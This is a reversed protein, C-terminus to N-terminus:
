WIKKGLRVSMHCIEGDKLYIIHNIRDVSEIYKTNVIVSRHCRVFDENLNKEIIFSQQIEGDSVLNELEDELKKLGTYTLLTKKAEM